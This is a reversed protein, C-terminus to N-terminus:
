QPKRRGTVGLYTVQGASEKKIIGVDDKRAPFIMKVTQIHQPKGSLMEKYVAGGM